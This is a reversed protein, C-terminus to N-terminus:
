ELRLFSEATTTLTLAVVRVTGDSGKVKITLTSNDTLEFVMDGNSSPTASAAPQITVANSNQTSMTGLGSVATNAISIATNSAATLRGQADVTFTGVQSASGYSAATVATNALSITRNASLDGGGSLGTGASITTASAAAGLATLAAGATTSGTGGNAVALTGALTITGSSTIPGGSTTLGTTGGSVDISTVTGVGGASIWEVDTGGINVALVKGANSTYTPLLNTRAGSASSAGTGGDAVALDTIGTVSGGSISVSNANQTSMTGLGSVATNAISISTNSAATLRGQADVTFTAVQSASGYSAATVATNALSITRNASLDGGGSLGTGASVTRGTPVGGLNSLATSADSAGTGGDAIALDTIGSVSGGSITVNNANQTSMTGLGSVATNAIAISTNSTATLRGQADVTFTPVASASGYSGASVATNALSITGTSTIPGGTLGTGTAVSTVTGNEPASITISGAGNTISIGTGATLNANKWLSTAADYIILQGNAPSNIQVDHIEDLEYGNQVRVYIQGNGANAREVIGVYVMHNPAKPKTATLTGATAGLYLTDGENYASTNIKDLVGQCIILGNAGSAISEAALGFTKASTADTTNYALKVSAKNGTAEYLYVPKGKAITSGEANHVYAYLTQALEAQVNGGVMGIQVTGTDPNWALRREADTAGAAAFDIYTPTAVGGTLGSMSTIDSNAGKKAGDPWGTRVVVENNSEEIVVSQLTEDVIIRETM